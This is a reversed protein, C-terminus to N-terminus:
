GSHLFLQDSRDLILTTFILLELSGIFIALLLDDQHVRVSTVVVLASILHEVLMLVEVREGVHMLDSVVQLLRLIAVVPHGTLQLVLEVLLLRLARLNLLLELLQLAGNGHVSHVATCALFQAGFHDLLPFLGIFGFVLLHM